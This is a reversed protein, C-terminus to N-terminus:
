KPSIPIWIEEESNPDNIKFKEGLTEFHPRFDLRFDSSPLWKGFIYQFVSKDGPHGKYDFVAYLGAP